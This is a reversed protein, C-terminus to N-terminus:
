DGIAYVMYNDCGFYLTGDQGISPSSYIADDAQFVWKQEGRPDLAHLTGDASGFYITGDAGIASSSYIDGGTKFEWKKTGDPKLAYFKNDFSGFYITGDAGIAPSSRITAGTEFKWKNTGDPTVAYLVGDYSGFYITGDAAIAPSSTIVDGTEFTWQETGDPNLAYLTYDRSGVYVTGDHGIAPSSFVSDGAEFTWKKKAEAPGTSPGRGNHKPNQGFMPRPASRGAHRQTKPYMEQYVMYSFVSVSTCCCALLVAALALVIWRGRRPRTPVREPAGTGPPASDPKTPEDAVPDEPPAPEASGGEAERPTGPSVGQRAGQRARDKALLQGWLHATALQAYMATFFLGILFLIMGMGALYGLGYGVMWILAYDVLNDQILQKVRRVQFCSRITNETAFRLEVAPLWLMLAFLVVMYLLQLPLMTGLFLLPNAHHRGGDLGLMFQPLAMFAVVAAIVPLSYVFM